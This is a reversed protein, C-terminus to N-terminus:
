KYLGLDIVVPWRQWTRRRSTLSASLLSVLLLVV